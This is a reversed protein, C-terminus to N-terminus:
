NAGASDFEVRSRRLDFFLFTVAILLVGVCIGCNFVVAQLNITSPGLRHLLLGTGWLAGCLALPKWEYRLPFYRQGVWGILTTMLVWAALWAWASGYMGYRPVLVRNLVINVGVGALFVPILWRTMSGLYIGVSAPYILIATAQVLLLLPIVGLSGAYQPTAFISLLAPSILSIIIAIASALVAVYSFLKSYIFRANPQKAIQFLLGGWAAAFPGVILIRMLGSIKIGVAYLGVQDLGGYDKVFYRGSADLAMMLLSSAVVPFGYRMMSLGADFSLGFTVDRLCLGVLVALGVADGLVRGWFIGPLGSGKVMLLWTSFVAIAVLRVVSSLSFAAARRRARLHTLFVTQLAELLVWPLILWAFRHTPAGLVEVGSHSTVLVSLATGLLIATLGNAWLMTGLLVPVSRNEADAYWKLYSVNFGLGAVAILGLVAVEVLAYLGFEAPDLYRTYLPLLVMNALGMVSLGILYQFSDGALAVLTGSFGDRGGLTELYSKWRKPLFIPM